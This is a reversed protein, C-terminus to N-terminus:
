HTKEDCITETQLYYDRSKEFTGDNSVMCKCEHEGTKMFEAKGFEGTLSFFDLIKIDGFTM